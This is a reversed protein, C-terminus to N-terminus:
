VDANTYRRCFEMQETAVVNIFQFVVYVQLCNAAIQLLNSFIVVSRLTETKYHRSM